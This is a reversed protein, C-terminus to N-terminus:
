DNLVGDLVAVAVRGCRREDPDVIAGLRERERDRWNRVELETLMCM